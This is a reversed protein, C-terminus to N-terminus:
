VASSDDCAFLVLMSLPAFLCNSQHNGKWPEIMMSAVTWGQNYVVATGEDAGAPLRIVAEQWATTQMWPERDQAAGRKAWGDCGYCLGRGGGGRGVGRWEWTCGSLLTAYVWGLMIICRRRRGWSRARLDCSAVMRYGGPGSLRWLWWCQATRGSSRRMTYM